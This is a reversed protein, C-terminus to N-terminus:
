NGAHDNRRFQKDNIAANKIDGYKYIKWMLIEDTEKGYEIIREIIIKKNKKYDLKTIDCNWFIHDSFSFLINEKESNFASEKEPKRKFVM